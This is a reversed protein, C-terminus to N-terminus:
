PESLNTEISDYTSPPVGICCGDWQNFMVLAQRPDTSSIPFAIYGNLKVYKEHLFAVRQPMKTLGKRPDYIDAASMLLEFPVVYPDKETGAGKVRFRGDIVLENGIRVAKAPTIKEAPWAESTPLEVPTGEAAPPVPRAAHPAEAPTTAAITIANELDLKFDVLAPDAPPTEPKATSPAAPAAPQENVPADARHSPAAAPEIAAPQPAPSRGAQPSVFFAAAAGALLILLLFAWFLRM